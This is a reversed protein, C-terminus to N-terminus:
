GRDIRALYHGERTETVALGHRALYFRLWAFTQPDIRALSKRLLIWRVGYRRLIELNERVEAALEPDDSSGPPPPHLIRSAVPEDNFFGWASRPVRTLPGSMLPRGHRIQGLAMRRMGIEIRAPLELVAGPEPDNAIISYAEEMPVPEFRLPRLPSTAVFLLAVALASALLGRRPQIGALGALLAVGLLFLRLHAPPYRGAAMGPVIQALWGYPMPLVHGGFSRTPGLALLLGAVALLGLLPAGRERLALGIAAAALLAVAAEVAVELAIAAPSELPPRLSDYIDAAIRASSKDDISLSKEAREMAVAETLAPLVHWCLGFADPSLTRQVADPAERFELRKEVDAGGAESFQRLFPVLLPSMLLAGAVGCALWHLLRPRWAAGRRLEFLWLVAAAVVMDFLLAADIAGALAFLLGAGAISAARGRGSTAARHGVWLFWPVLAGALYHIRGLHLMRFPAFAFLAGAVVSPWFPVGLSRLLLSLGQLALPFSLLGILKVAVVAGQLPGLLAQLPLSLVGYPLAFPSAALSAGHPHFVLPCFLPDVHRVCLAEHLWWFDWWYVHDDLQKDSLRTFAFLEGALPWTVVVAAATALAFLLLERVLRARWPPPERDPSV